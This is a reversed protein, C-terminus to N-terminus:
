LRLGFSTIAVNFIVESLQSRQAAAMGRPAGAQKGESNELQNV